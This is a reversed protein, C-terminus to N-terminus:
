LTFVSELYAAVGDADNTGTTEDAIARLTAHANGVAVGHGAWTLLPIDNPMDGFAVVQDAAIGRRECFWALGAAKTVGAASIEVLASSSSRTAVAQDGLTRSILSLFDDPDAVSSRALLKVAPGATLEDPSAIVRVVSADHEWRITWTDEHLFARGDEVEVALSIDPIEARLSKVVALLVDTDFPSTRVVEDRDPDYIVAGNACVAPLPAPLQDYIQQLWRLPRGTVLVLPVPLRGLVDLTRPSLVRESTILTGDIDSAVLRYPHM